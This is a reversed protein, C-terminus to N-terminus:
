AEELLGGRMVRNNKRLLFKIEPPIYPPDKSTVTITRTLYFRDLWATSMAYFEDWAPGPDIVNCQLRDDFDKLHLLIDAHQGPSKQRFTRQSTTKTRDRPAAQVSALIVRHDTQVTSTLVRVQYGLPPTVMIMDRPPAKTSDVGKRRLTM